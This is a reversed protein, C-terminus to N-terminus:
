KKMVSCATKKGDKAPHLALAACDNMAALIKTCIHM